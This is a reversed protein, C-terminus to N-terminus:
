AQDEVAFAVSILDETRVDGPWSMREMAIFDVLRQRGHLFQSWAFRCAALRSGPGPVRMWRYM